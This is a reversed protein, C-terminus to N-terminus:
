GHGAVEAQLLSSAASWALLVHMRYSLIPADAEVAQALCDDSHYRTLTQAQMPPASGSLAAAFWTLEDALTPQPTLEQQNRQPM